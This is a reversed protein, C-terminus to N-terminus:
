VLLKLYLHKADRPVMTPVYEYYADVLVHFPDGGFINIALRILYSTM